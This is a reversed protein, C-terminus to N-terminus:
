SSCPEDEMTRLRDIGDILEKLAAVFHAKHQALAKPAQGFPGARLYREEEGEIYAVGGSFAMLDAQLDSPGGGYKILPDLVDAAKESLEAWLHQLSTRVQVEILSGAAEVVLHVARYGNSPKERRDIVAMKPFAVSLAQVLEDQAPVHEVVIRCGAIDQVQSLRISERRLKAIIAGTSKAPRGTPAQRLRLLTQVVAHYAEGFSRRYQDLLRLDDDTHAGQRLREGLQDVKSKTLAM